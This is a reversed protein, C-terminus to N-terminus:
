GGARQALDGRAALERAHHQRQHTSRGLGPGAREDEVLDVRADAALGCSRHALLQAVEGGPALHDADRVQRLDRREGIAVERDDLVDRALGRAGGDGLELAPLQDALEHPHQAGVAVIGRCSAVRALQQLRRSRPAGARSAAPRGEVSPSVWPSNIGSCRGRVRNMKMVPPTTEERPLPMAAAEIPRRSTERPRLTAMWFNSGYMLTSGPVIDGNWCPSTNTVSSPASVSRSM